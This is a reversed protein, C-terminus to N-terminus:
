KEYEEEFDEYSGAKLFDLSYSDDTHKSLMISDIGITDLMAKRVLTGDKLNLIDRLIWKGLAKNPNSMLAKGGQQAVKMNLTEGSPLKVDFSGTKYDDTNYEFFEPKAKHIWAPIPIYVEDTDRNRGEANWQNLGSKKPVEGLKPSYLPLIIFDTVDNNVELTSKEKENLDSHLLFDFPDELIKVEFREILRKDTTNFRKFLTSKSTNYGYEHIGDEFSIVTERKRKIEKIANIDVLDMPEEYIGMCNLDRTILHYMMDNLQCIRQTTKIRENRMEAIKYVIQEDNLNKLLYSERNFEAVKQFTKGNNQLFTKLGIGIRDKGADVSVDSRAYNTAEFSKCFINEMARYYLFPKKSDAFLNSLSGTIQLLKIYLKREEDSQTQYFM